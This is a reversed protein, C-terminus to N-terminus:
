GKARRNNLPHNRDKHGGFVKCRSSGRCDESLQQFGPAPLVHLFRTRHLLLFRALALALSDKVAKGFFGDMWAYCLYEPSFHASLNEIHLYPPQM